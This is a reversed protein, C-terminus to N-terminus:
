IMTVMMMTPLQQLRTVSTVARADVPVDDDDDGTTSAHCLTWRQGNGDYWL